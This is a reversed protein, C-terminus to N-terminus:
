GGLGSSLPYSEPKCTSGSDHWKAREAHELRATAASPQSLLQRQLDSVKAAQEKVQQTIGSFHTKNLNRLVSKLFKLSRALKFQNTGQIQDCNRANKVADLYDPHDM